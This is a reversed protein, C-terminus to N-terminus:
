ISTTLVIGLSLNTMRAEYGDSRSPTLIFIEAGVTVCQRIGIGLHDISKVLINGTEINPVLFIDPFTEMRITQDPFAEYLNNAVYIECEGLQGELSLKRLEAADDKYPSCGDVIRPAALVMVRPRNWGLRNLIRIANTLIKQKTKLNPHINVGGDTVLFIKEFGSIHNFCLTCPVQNPSYKKTIRLLSRYLYTTLIDGKVVFAVEGKKAMDLSLNAAEQPDEQDLIEIGNLPFNNELALNKIRTRHGVLVPKILGEKTGDVTTRLIDPDEPFVICVKRPGQKKAATVIEEFNRYM